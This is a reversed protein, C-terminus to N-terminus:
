TGVKMDQLGTHITYQPSWSFENKFKTNDLCSNTIEGRRREAHNILSSSASMEKMTSVLDNISITTNTSVNYTGVIDSDTAKISASAVDKVYIFDRTQTGDGYVTVEQNTQLRDNFIAVAGGEASSNQKAGYVNSFRLVTQSLGFNNYFFRAYSEMTMKSLGYPSVPAVPETEKLPLNKNDGYVAASSALVVHKCGYKSATKLVNISGLINLEADLKPNDISVVANVQAALHIVKEPHYKEFVRELFEEDRIDGIELPINENLNSKNGTSLNDIVICESGLINAIESGIFGAGGTILYPHKM